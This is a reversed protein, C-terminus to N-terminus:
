DENSNTEFVQVLKRTVNEIDARHEPNKDDYGLGMTEGVMKKLYASLRDFDNGISIIPEVYSKYEDLTLFEPVGIPNWVGLVKNVKGELNLKSNMAEDLQLKRIFGNGLKGMRM